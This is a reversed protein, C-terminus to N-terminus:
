YRAQGRKLLEVPTSEDFVVVLSVSELAAV